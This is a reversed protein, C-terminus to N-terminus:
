FISFETVGSAAGRRPKTKCTGWEGLVGEFSSRTTNCNLVQIIFNWWFTNQYKWRTIIFRCAHHRLLSREAPRYSLDSRFVDHRWKKRQNVDCRPFIRCLKPLLFCHRCRCGAQSIKMPFVWSIDLVKCKICLPKLKSSVSFLMLFHFTRDSRHWRRTASLVQRNRM